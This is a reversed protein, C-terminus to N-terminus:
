DLGSSKQKAEKLDSLKGHFTDMADLVIRKTKFEKNKTIHSPVLKDILKSIVPVFAILVQIILAPM